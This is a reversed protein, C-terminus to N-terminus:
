RAAQELESQLREVGEMLESFRAGFPTLHYEVRPPVEPFSRKELIGFRVLKRLRENLVKKSVGEIAHELAGPRRVGRRVAGLVALSWKCGVIEEVMRAASPASSVKKQRRRM